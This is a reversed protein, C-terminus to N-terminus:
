WEVIWKEGLTRVRFSDHGLMNLMICEVVFSMFQKVILYSFLILMWLQFVYSHVEGLLDDASLYVVVEM